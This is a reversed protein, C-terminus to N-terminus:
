YGHSPERSLVLHLANNKVYGPFTQDFLSPLRSVLNLIRNLTLPVKLRKAEQVLLTSSLYWLSPRLNFPIRNEDAFSNIFMYAKKLIRTQNKIASYFPQVPIHEDVLTNKLVTFWRQLDEDKEPKLRSQLESCWEMVSHLEQESLGQCALLVDELGVSEGKWM